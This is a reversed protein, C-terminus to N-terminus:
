ITNIVKKIPMNYKLVKHKVSDSLYEKNIDKLKNDIKNFLRKCRKHAMIAALLADRQHKDKIKYSTKRLYKKVLRDKEFNNMNKNPVNLKAGLSSAFTAVSKPAPRVDSGVIIPKGLKIGIGISEKSSPNKISRIDLINGNLDLVAYGKTAGPDFGLITFKEIDKIV